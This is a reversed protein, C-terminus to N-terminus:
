APWEIRVVADVYDDLGVRLPEAVSPPLGTALRRLEAVAGAEEFTAARAHNFGEWTLMAVFALLMAYTVGILSFIATM